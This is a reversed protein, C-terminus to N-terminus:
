GPIWRVTVERASTHISIRFMYDEGASKEFDSGKRFHPNFDPVIRSCISNSQTVERASTHISIVMNKIYSNGM